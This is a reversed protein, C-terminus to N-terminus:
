QRWGGPSRAQVSDLFAVPFQRLRYSLELM